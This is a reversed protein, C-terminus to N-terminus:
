RSVGFQDSKFADTAKLAAYLDDRDPQQIFGMAEELSPFQGEPLGYIRAIENTWRIEQTAVDM